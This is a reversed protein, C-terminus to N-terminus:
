SGRKVLHLMWRQNPGHMERPGSAGTILTPWTHNLGSQLKLGHTLYYGDICSQITYYYGEMQNELFIYKTIKWTQNMDGNRRKIIPAHDSDTYDLLHELIPHRWILYGNPNCGEYLIAWQTKKPDEAVQVQQQEEDHNLWRTPGHVGTFASVNYHGDLVPRDEAVKTLVPESQSSNAINKTKGSGLLERLQKIAEAVLPSSLGSFDNIVLSFSGGSTPVQKTPIIERNKIAERNEPTNELIYVDTSTDTLPRLSATLGLSLAFETNPALFKYCTEEQVINWYFPKAQGIFTTNDQAIGVFLGNTQSKLALQGTGDRELLWQQNTGGHFPYAVIFNFTTTNDSASRGSRSGTQVEIAPDSARSEFSNSSSM